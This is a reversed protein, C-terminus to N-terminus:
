AYAGTGSFAIGSALRRPSCRGWSTAEAMVGIWPVLPYWVDFTFGHGLAIPGPVHLITWSWGAAGWSAATVPDLLNHGAILAFALTAVATRPLWVLGALAVMCWGLAWLVLASTYHYDLNFMWGLRAVTLELLVLWLGRVLLFRSLAVRDRRRGLSLQAGAGALLMFVPACFHTLWRTFFLAVTTRAPDTPDFRADSLFYRVHDVVMLLIVIGRLLDIVPVRDRRHRAESRSISPAERGTVTGQSTM